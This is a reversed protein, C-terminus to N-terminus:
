KDGPAIFVFLGFGEGGQATSRGLVDHPRPQTKVAEFEIVISPIWGM